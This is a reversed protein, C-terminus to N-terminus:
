KGEEIVEGTAADKVTLKDRWDIHHGRESLFEKLEKRELVRKECLIEAMRQLTDKHEQLLARVRTRQEELISQVDQDVQAERHDSLRRRQYGDSTDMYCFEQSSGM